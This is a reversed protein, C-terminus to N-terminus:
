HMCEVQGIQASTYPASREMATGRNRLWVDMEDSNLEGDFGSQYKGVKLGCENTRVGEWAKLASFADGKNRILISWPMNTFDDVIDLVYHNGSKSQVNVPGMLDVWVIKLRWTAKHGEQRLKPM